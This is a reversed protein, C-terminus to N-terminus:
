NKKAETDPDVVEVIGAKRKRLVRGTKVWTRDKQWSFGNEKLIGWITTKGIESLEESDSRLRKELSSLSWSAMGDREVIPEEKAQELILQREKPGYKPKPGGGHRPEIAAIGEQNFRKVLNSVSEIDRRGAQQAAATFSKGQAVALLISARKVQASPSSRARSLKELLAQEESTLARLLVKPKRGM